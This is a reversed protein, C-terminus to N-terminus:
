LEKLKDITPVGDNTWGRRRYVADTLREYEAERFARLVAVKEETAMGEPNLDLKERLQDDSLRACDPELANIEAIFDTHKKVYRESSTSFLRTLTRGIIEMIAM